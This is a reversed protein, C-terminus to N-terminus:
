RASAISRIIPLRAYWRAGSASTRSTTTALQAANARGSRPQTRTGRLVIRSHQSSRLGERFFDTIIAVLVKQIEAKDAPDTVISLLAATSAATEPTWKEDPVGEPLLLGALLEIPAGREVVMSILRLAFDQASEGENPTCNALGAARLHRMVYFDQALTSREVMRYLAGDIKFVQAM